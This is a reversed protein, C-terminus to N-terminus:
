KQGWGARMMGAIWFWSFVIVWLIGVASLAAGAGIFGAVLGYLLLVPASALFAWFLALRAGYASGQGGVLRAV